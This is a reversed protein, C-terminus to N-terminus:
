FDDSSLTKPKLNELAIEADVENKYDTNLCGSCIGDDDFIIRPRQNSIVCRKCWLADKPLKLVQRELNGRKFAM